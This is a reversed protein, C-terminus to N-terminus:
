QDDIAICQAALRTRHLHQALGALWERNEDDVLPLILRECEDALERQGYRSALQLLQVVSGGLAEWDVEFSYMYRLVACTAEM